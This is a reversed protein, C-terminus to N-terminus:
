EGYNLHTEPMLNKINKEGQSAMDDFWKQMLVVLAVFM